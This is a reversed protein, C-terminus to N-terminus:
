AEYKNGDTLLSQIFKGCPTDGGNEADKQCEAHFPCLACYNDFAHALSINGGEIENYLNEAYKAIAEKLNMM